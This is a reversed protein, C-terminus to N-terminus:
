RVSISGGPVDKFVDHIWVLQHYFALLPNLRPPLDDNGARSSQQSTSWGSSSSHAAPRLEDLFQSLKSFTRDQPRLFPEFDQFFRDRLKQGLASDEFGGWVDEQIQWAFVEHELSGSTLYNPAADGGDYHAVVRGPEYHRWVSIKLTPAGEIAL